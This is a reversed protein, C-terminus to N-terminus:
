ACGDGSTPMVEVTTVKSVTLRQVSEDDWVHLPWKWIHIGHKTKSCINILVCHNGRPVTVPGTVQQEIRLQEIMVQININKDLMGTVDLICNKGGTNVVIPHCTKHDSGIDKPNEDEEPELTFCDKRDASLLKICGSPLNAM